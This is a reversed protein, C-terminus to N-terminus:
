INCNDAYFFISFKSIYEVDKTCIEIYRVNYM